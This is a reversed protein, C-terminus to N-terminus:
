LVPTSRTYVIVNGLGALGVDSRSGTEAPRTPVASLARRAAASPDAASAVGFQEVSSNLWGIVTESPPLPCVGCVIAWCDRPLMLTATGRVRWAAVRVRPASGPGPM